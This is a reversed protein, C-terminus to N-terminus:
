FDEFIVYIIIWSHEISNLSTTKASAYFTISTHEMDNRCPASGKRLMKLELSFSVKKSMSTVGCRRRYDVCEFSRCIQEFHSM